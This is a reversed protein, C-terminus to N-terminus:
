KFSYQQWDYAGSTIILRKSKDLEAIWAHFLPALASAPTDLSRTLTLFDNFSFAKMNETLFNAVQLFDRLYSNDGSSKKRGEQKSVFEATVETLSKIPQFTAYEPKVTNAKPKM